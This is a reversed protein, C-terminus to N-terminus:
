QLEDIMGGVRIALRLMEDHLPLLTKLVYTREADTMPRKVKLREFDSLERECFQSVKRVLAQGSRRALNIRAMLLENFQKVGMDESISFSALVQELGEIEDAGLGIEDRNAGDLVWETIQACIHMVRIRKRADRFDVAAANGPPLDLRQPIRAGDRNSAAIVDHAGENIM